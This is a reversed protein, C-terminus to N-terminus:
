GGAGLPYSTTHNEHIRGHPDGVEASCLAAERRQKLLGVNGTMREHNSFEGQPVKAISGLNQRQELCKRGNFNGVVILDHSEDHVVLEHGFPQSVHIHM